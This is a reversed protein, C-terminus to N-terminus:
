KLNDKKITIINYQDESNVNITVDNFKEKM